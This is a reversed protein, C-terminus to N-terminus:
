SNFNFIIYQATPKKEDLFIITPNALFAEAISWDRQLEGIRFWQLPDERPELCSPEM